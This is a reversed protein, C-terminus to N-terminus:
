EELLNLWNVIMMAKLLNGRLDMHVGDYLNAQISMNWTGLHDIRRRAAERRTTHEFRVLAKNGQTVLFDDPKKVGAANPTMFLIPSNRGKPLKELHSRIGLRSNIVNLVVDLWCRTQEINLDNWLGHGLIFATRSKPNRDIALELRSAEEVKMPFQVIQEMRLDTSWGPILRTCALSLPAHKIVDDTKYIGQVSCNKVDFQQNCFCEENEQVNFNWDTVGGYGLNERVIINLAGIVHRVMSDGVLIVQSYRGLIECVEETTHWQMDCGRPIYPADRGIRGGQSMAQLMSTRSRCVPDFPRHIELSSINCNEGFHKYGAFANFFERPRSRPPSYLPFDGRTGRSTQRLIAHPSFVVIAIGTVLTLILMRGFLRIVGRPLTLWEPWMRPPPPTPPAMPSNESSSRHSLSRRPRVDRFSFPQANQIIWPLLKKKFLSVSLFLM